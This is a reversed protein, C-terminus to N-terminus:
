APAIFKIVVFTVDDAPSEVGRYEALDAELAAGIAAASKAHHTRIVDQLRQKGYREKKQNIMEWVGDTGIVLVSNPPLPESVREEYTLNEMVGLMLDGASELEIFSQSHPDFVVASDHGASVWRVIRTRADILLLALTVFRKHRNDAALVQNTKAMLEALRNEQMASTRLAARVTAMVLAAPIGHGMVDGVAVVLSTPSISALDIFDYYDGSTEDCYKSRGSIDLLPSAPDRAPLLCKQVNMALDLLNRLRLRDRLDGIMQNLALSLQRFERSGEFDAQAKLDGAGVRHM